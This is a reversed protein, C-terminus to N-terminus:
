RSHNNIGKYSKILVKIKWKGLVPKVSTKLEFSSFGDVLPTDRWIRMTSDSPNVISVKDLKGNFPKLNSDVVIVRSRIIQGPKYLPRDTQILISLGLKEVRIDQSMNSFKWLDGGIVGEGQLVVRVNRPANHPVTVPISILSGPRARRSVENLPIAGEEIDKGKVRSGDYILVNVEVDNPFGHTSFIVNETVGSRFIRPFYAMYHWNCQPLNRRRNSIACDKDVRVIDKGYSSDLIVYLLVLILLKMKGM